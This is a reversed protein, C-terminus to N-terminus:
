NMISSFLEIVADRLPSVMSIIIAVGVLLWTGKVLIATLPNYNQIQQSIGMIMPTFADYLLQEISPVHFTLFLIVIFGFLASGFKEPDM